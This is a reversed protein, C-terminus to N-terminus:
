RRPITAPLKRGKSRPSFPWGPVPELLLGDFDDVVDDRELKRALDQVAGWVDSSQLAAMTQAEIHELEVGQAGPLLCALSWAQCVDDHRSCARPELGPTFPEGATIQDALPGALCNAIHARLQRDSEERFQRSQRPTPLMSSARGLYSRYGAKDAEFDFENPGWKIYVIVSGPDSGAYAGWLDTLVAGKRGEFTWNSAGVPAVAIQYAWAGGLSHIVAHAAEHVCVEWRREPTLKVDLEM